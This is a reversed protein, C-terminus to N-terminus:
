VKKLLSLVSRNLPSQNELDEKLISSTIDFKNNFTFDVHMGYNLIIINRDKRVPKLGRHFAVTNAIVVDGRKALIPIMNKSGYINEIYKDEWRARKGWQKNIDRFSEKIYYFPGDDETDVDNLYIFVKLLKSSNEDIHFHQTDHEKIKNNYTKVCKLFTLYPICGFYNSAISIIRKNLSCDILEPLNILPDKLKISDTFKRFEKEGSLFLADNIKPLDINEINKNKLRLDRPISINNLGKVQKQFNSNLGDIYQKTFVKKLVCYGDRNLNSLYIEDEDSMETKQHLQKELTKKLSKQYFSKVYEYDSVIPM